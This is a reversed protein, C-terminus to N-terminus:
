STTFCMTVSISSVTNMQAKSREHGVEIGLALYAARMASDWCKHTTLVVVGKAGVKTASGFRFTGFIDEDVSM